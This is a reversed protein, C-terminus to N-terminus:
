SDDLSGNIEYVVDESQKSFCPQQSLLAYTYRKLSYHTGNNNCALSFLFIVIQLYLVDLYVNKKRFKEFYSFLYLLM